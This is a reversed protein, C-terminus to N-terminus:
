HPQESTNLSTNPCPVTVPMVAAAVVVSVWAVPIARTSATHARAEPCVTVPTAQKFTTVFAMVAVVVVM